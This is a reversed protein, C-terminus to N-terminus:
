KVAEKIWRRVTRNNLKVGGLSVLLWDSKPKFQIRCQMYNSLAKITQESLPIFKRKEVLRLMGNHVNIDIMVLNLAVAVSFQEFLVLWLIAELRRGEHTKSIKRTIKQM